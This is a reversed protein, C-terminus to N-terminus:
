NRGRRRDRRDRRGHREHNTGFLLVGAAPIALFWLWSGTVFFLIVALIPIVAIIRGTWDPHFGHREVPTPKPEAPARGFNQATSAPLDDFVRDLEGRTAATTIQGSREDFEAVSLRGASFHEGLLHLAQERDLTGIRIEPPEAM